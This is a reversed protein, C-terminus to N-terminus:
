FKIKGRSLGFAALKLANKKLKALHKGYKRIGAAVNKGRKRAYTDTAQVVRGQGPKNHTYTGLTVVPDFIGLKQGIPGAGILRARNM